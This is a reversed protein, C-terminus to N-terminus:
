ENVVAIKSVKYDDQQFVFCAKNEYGSGEKTQQVQINNIVGSHTKMQM